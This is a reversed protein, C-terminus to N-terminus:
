LVESLSLVGAKKAAHVIYQYQRDSPSFYDPLVGLLKSWWERITAYNTAGSIEPYPIPKAGNSSPFSDYITRYNEHAAGLYYVFEILQFAEPNHVDYRADVLIKYIEEMRRDTGRVTQSRLRLLETRSIQSEPVVCHDKVYKALTAFYDEVVIQSLDQEYLIGRSALQDLPGGFDAPTEPRKQQEPKVPAVPESFNYRPKAEAPEALKQEQKRKGFKGFFEM